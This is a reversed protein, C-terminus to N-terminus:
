TACRRLSQPYARNRPLRLIFRPLELGARCTYQSCKRRVRPCQLEIGVRRAPQRASFVYSSRRLIMRTKNLERALMRSLKRWVPSQLRANRATRCSSAHPKTKRRISMLCDNLRKEERPTLAQTLKRRRNAGNLFSAFTESGGVRMFPTKRLPLRNKPARMGNRTRACEANLGCEAATKRPAFFNKPFLLFFVQM